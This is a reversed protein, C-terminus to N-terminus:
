PNLRLLNWGGEAAWSYLLRDHYRSEREQWFEYSTPTVCYGGWFPPLPLPDEGKFREEVEAFLRDMEERSPTVQSQASAWAAIQSKRPRTVFYEYSKDSDTKEATGQIRIQRGLERWYFLLAVRPNLDLERAKKSEYNTFFLFGDDGYEKLLVARLSPQGDPSVTALTMATPQYIRAKEMENYWRTFLLLPDGGADEELLPTERLSAQFEELDFFSDTM